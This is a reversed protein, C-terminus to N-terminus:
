NHPRVKAHATGFMATCTFTGYRRTRARQFRARERFSETEREVDNWPTRDIKTRVRKYSLRDSGEDNRRAGGYIAYVPNQVAHDNDWFETYARIYIYTCTYM